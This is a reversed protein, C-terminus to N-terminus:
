VPLGLGRRRGAITEYSWSGDPARFRKLRDEGMYSALEASIEAFGVGSWDRGEFFETKLTGFFGEAPANDGSAGERSISREM